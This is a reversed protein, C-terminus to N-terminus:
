DFDRCRQQINCFSARKPQQSGYRCLFRMGHWLLMAPPGGCPKASRPLAHRLLAAGFPRHLPPLPGSRCRSTSERRGASPPSSGTLRSLNSSASTSPTPVCLVRRRVLCVRHLPREPATRPFGLSSAPARQHVSSIPGGPAPHAGRSSVPACGGDTKSHLGNREGLALAHLLWSGRRVGRQLQQRHRRGGREAREAREAQRERGAPQGRVEGARRGARWDAGGAAREDRGVGHTCRRPTGGRHLMRGLGEACAARVVGVGM